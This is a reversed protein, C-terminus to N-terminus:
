ANNAGVLTVGHDSLTVSVTTEAALPNVVSPSIVFLEGLETAVTYEM